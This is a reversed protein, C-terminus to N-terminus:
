RKVVAIATAIRRSLETTAESMAAVIAPMEAARGAAVAGDGAPEVVPKTIRSRDDRILEGGDRGYIRWGADLMVEGPRTADFRLLDVEVQYDPHVERPAPMLVVRDTGLLSSLNEALTRPFLTALPEVWYEFEHLQLEMATSRTVIQPRDLYDAIAIPGVGIVLPKPEQPNPALSGLSYYRLPPSQTCAALLLLAGALLFRAASIM